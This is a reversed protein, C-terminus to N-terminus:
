EDAGEFCYVTCGGFGPAYSPDVTGNIGAAGPRVWKVGLALRDM